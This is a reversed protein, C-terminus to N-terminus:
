GDIRRRRVRAVLLGMAVLLTALIGVGVPLGTTPIGSNGGANTGGGGGTPPRYNAGRNACTAKGPGPFQYCYVGRGFTAAVMLNPAGPVNRITGIPVAPLTGSGLVDWEAGNLNRSLYAGLETGLVLQQGRVTIWTASADPLNASINTFHEGADHSVFVHGSGINNNPDLHSGPPVWQRGNYGGLAVYVTKADSPDIAISTIFRNPLGLAKALHWGQSTMRKPAQTGGVNTALGNQFGIDWNNNIDCVGCFGVYAADGRLDLSSVQNPIGNQLELPDPTQGPQAKTGLDFVKQWSSQATGAGQFNRTAVGDVTEVIEPGGTMLHKDDTTDMVFPNGFTPYSVCNPELPTSQPGSCTPAADSWHKGGDKTVKMVANTYEEWAENSNDPNVASYFADGGYAMYQTGDPTLKAQGNDQLGFWVTGDKAPAADYPLLTHFGAQNGRGWRKNSFAQGPNAHQTYAGGDNGVILTVGGGVLDPIYVADHQDPHTTMDGPGTNTTPCYPIGSALIQCSSGSYYPGIVVFPTILSAVPNTNTAWVEELGFTVRTPMGSGNQVTPDPQIWENYWAQVGPAYLTAQNAGALASGTTPNQAISLNSGLQTWTQGFNASRYVGNLVSNNPLGLTCIGTQVQPEPVDLVPVGGNFLCADSVIAFIYNHNQQSGTAIGLEVRGVRLPSAFGPPNVIKTFTSPAGTTSAYLGNASNELDNNTYTALNGARYGVAALVEGGTENTTGGPAKVVVDTVFNAFQCPGYGTIGACVTTGAKTPLNVNSFTRGANTSRFLGMSTAVYVILPNAPNHAVQFGLAGDPVGTSQHWSAGLDNSWFAGLGTHTDGGMLPEGSVAVLTGGVRASAGLVPTWGIAGVIQTPLSDGISRWHGARDTSLWVGGTGVSAFLRNHVRDYDLSDIRGALDALGEGNVSGYDKGDAILPTKGLPSWAGDAGSVATPAALLAARQNVAARYAGTPVQANPAAAIAARQSQMAALDLPSEPHRLPVCAVHPTTASANDLAAVLPRSATSALGRAAAREATTPMAWRYGPPCDRSPAASQTASSTSAITVALPAVVALAALAALRRRNRKM